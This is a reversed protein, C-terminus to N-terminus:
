SAVYNIIFIIIIVKKIDFEGLKKNGKKTKLPRQRANTRLLATTDHEIQTESPAIVEVFLARRCVRDDLQFPEGLHSHFDAM